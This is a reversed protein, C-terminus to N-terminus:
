AVGMTPTQQGADYGPDDAGAGPDVEPGVAGTLALQQQMRQTVRAEHEAVHWELVKQIAPDLAAYLQGKAFAKHEAIHVEDNDQWGIPYISPPGPPAQDPAIVGAQLGAKYMELQQNYEEIQARVEEPDLDRIEINERQAQTKDLKIRNWVRGLTGMEIAELGDIPDVFGKDMWETVTAIKGAKSTPLGSGSEMRLDTGNRLDAGKLLKADFAGERGIVKVLRPEDWFQVALSLVQRGVNKMATEISDFTTYLFDDDTEKLLVLASAATDAGPSIARSVQHQGSIDDMWMKMRDLLQPIFTPLDSIPIATPARMGLRLPIWQGPVNPVRKPDLSGEDYFFGPNTALNKKKVIQSLTHNIENQLPTVSQVVSKRYFKGNEIGTLMAFPYDGHEYPIGQDALHVVQEGCIIVLGGQPFRRDYGPKIWLEKVLVSDPGIAPYGRVGLRNLDVLTGAGMPAPSWDDPLRDGYELRAQEVKKTYVHVVFPQDQIDLTTLDPVFLHFPTVHDARIVGRVPEPEPAPLAAAPKRMFSVNSEQLQAMEAAKERAARRAAATGAPDIRSQDYYVKIFGVGCVARWWNAPNFTRTQFDSEEHWWEYVQEGAQAAMIDDIDNSAPAVVATPSNAGTKALETRVIPEIINAAVRVDHPLRAPEVMTRKQIDWQTFQRGQVMDINKYWQREEPIRANRCVNYLRDVFVALDKFRESEQGARIEEASLELLREGAVEIPATDLSESRLRDLIRGLRTM